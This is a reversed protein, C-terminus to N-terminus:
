RRRGWNGSRAQRTVIGAAMSLRAEELEGGGAAVDHSQSPGKRHEVANQKVRANNRSPPLPPPPAAHSHPHMTGVLDENSPGPYMYILTRVKEARCIMYFWLVLLVLVLYLTPGKLWAQACRM